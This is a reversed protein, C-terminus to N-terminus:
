AIVPLELSCRINLQYPLEGSRVELVQEVQYLLTEGPELNVEVLRESIQEKRTLLTATLIAGCVLLLIFAFIATARVTRMISWKSSAPKGGESGDEVYDNVLAAKDKKEPLPGDMIPISATRGSRGKQLNM